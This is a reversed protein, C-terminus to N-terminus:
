RADGAIIGIAVKRIRTRLRKVRAPPTGIAAATEWEQEGLFLGDLCREALPDLTSAAARIRQELERAVAIKEPTDRDVPVPVATRAGVEGDDDQYDLFVAPSLYIVKRDPSRRYIRRADRLVDRRLFDPNAEKRAPSLALSIAHETIEADESGPPLVSFRNQLSRVVDFHVAPLGTSCPDPEM